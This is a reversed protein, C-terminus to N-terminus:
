NILHISNSYLQKKFLSGASVTVFYYRFSGRDYIYITYISLYVVRFNGFLRCRGTRDKGSESQLSRRDLCTWVHTPFASTSRETAIGPAGFTAIGKSSRLHTSSHQYRPYDAKPLHPDVSRHVSSNVPFSHGDKTELSPEDNLSDEGEDWSVVHIWM